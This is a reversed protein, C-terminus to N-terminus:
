EIPERYPDKSYEKVIDEKSSTTIQSLKSNFDFPKPSEKENKYTATNETPKEPVIEITKVTDAVARDESTKEVAPTEAKLNEETPLNEPPIDLSNHILNVEKKVEKKPELTQELKSVIPEFIRQNIEEYLQNALISSIVLNDKLENALEEIEGGGILAIWIEQIMSEKQQETLSYKTAIQGASQQWRSSMLVRRAEQPIEELYKNILLDFENM